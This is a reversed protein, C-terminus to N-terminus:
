PSLLPQHGNRHSLKKHIEIRNGEIIWHTVQVCIRWHFLDILNKEKLSVSRGLEKRIKFFWTINNESVVFILQTLESKSIGKIKM